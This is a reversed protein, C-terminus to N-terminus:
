NLLLKHVIELVAFDYFFGWLRAAVKIPVHITPVVNKIASSQKRTETSITFLVVFNEKWFTTM